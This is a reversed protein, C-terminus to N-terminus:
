GWDGMIKDISKNGSKQPAEKETVREATRATQQMQKIQRQLEERAQQDREAQRKENEETLWKKHEEIAAQSLKIGANFAEKEVSAKIQEAEKQASAKIQEAEAHIEEVKRKLFGMTVDYQYQAEKVKQEAGIAQATAAAAREEAKLAKSEAQQAKFQQATLHEKREGSDVRCEGRQLGFDTLVEDAFDTQHQSMKKPNGLAAAGNLGVQMVPEGNEDFVPVKSRKKRGKSDLVNEGNEDFVYENQMKQTEVIPVSLVQMHPTTEDYHIVASIAKGFRAEHFKLCREFYEKQEDLDPHLDFWEPSASYIGAIGLVADKKPTIGHKNLEDQISKQWDDSHVLYVNSNSRSLDVDNFYAGSEDVERNAERQLGRINDSAKVKKFNMVGYM